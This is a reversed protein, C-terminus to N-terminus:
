CEEVRKIMLPDQRAADQWVTTGRTPPEPKEPKITRIKGSAIRPRLSAFFEKVKGIPENLCIQQARRAEELTPFGILYEPIPSVVPSNAPMSWMACSPGNLAIWYRDHQHDMKM